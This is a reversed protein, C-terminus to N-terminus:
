DEVYHSTSKLSYTIPFHQQMLFESELVDYVAMLVEQPNEAEILLNGRDQLVLRYKDREVKQDKVTIKSGESIVYEYSKVGVVGPFGRLKTLIPGEMFRRGRQIYQEKIIVQKNQFITSRRGFASGVRRIICNKYTIGNTIIEFVPIQSNLRTITKDLCPYYLRAILGYILRPCRHDRWYMVNMQRLQCADAILIQFGKPDAWM